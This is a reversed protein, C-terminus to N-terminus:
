RGAFIRVYADGLAHGVLVIPSIEGATELVAKLESAIREGDRPRPGPESWMIGARDFSCVRTYKGVESQIADWSLSGFQDLDSELVVTPKGSGARHLHIDHTPLSVMKGPPPYATQYKSRTIIERILLYTILGFFLILAVFLLRGM